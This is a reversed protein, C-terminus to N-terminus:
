HGKGLLVVAVTNLLIKFDMRLSMNEIYYLDYEVKRRVDEISEDYKHKVQAWGTIGPRVKLRRKYLPIEEALQEVFYPREPRPGVLSMDGDLVNILQPVEDIRLKRLIKGIRTVRPDEKNAWVPGSGQEANHYMSRFKVIHFIEEDKGVREQMYFIPGQSNLRIALAVVLWVPLGVLLVIMAVSIDIARKVAREWPQMIEPMIEILPFGYIQNTRAQGSIIDYLDPIIKLSVEHSNCSGIISLLRDHETSDLAILVDKVDHRDILTTLEEVSPFIPVGKYSKESSGKAVSVFGVINYGLAPYLQVTDFLQMAKSSWGVILTNHLGIGAELLRRQFTHQLFRGTGVFGTVLGWYGVIFFRSQVPSGTGEDDIFIAFFLVLVGFITAKSITVFEDFRSQAYWSRYLGFLFFVILWYVCIVLMPMWFDPMTAFSLWGSRVRLWYFGTWALNLTLLDLFILLSKEKYM